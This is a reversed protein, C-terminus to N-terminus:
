HFIHSAQLNIRNNQIQDASYQSGLESFILARLILAMYNSFQQGKIEGRSSTHPLSQSKLPFHEINQFGYLPNSEVPHMSMYASTPFRM